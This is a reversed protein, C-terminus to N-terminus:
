YYVGVKVMEEYSIGAEAMRSGVTSPFVRCMNKWFEESDDNIHGCNEADVCMNTFEFGYVDEVRKEMAKYKKYNTM